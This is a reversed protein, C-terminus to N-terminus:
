TLIVFLFMLVSRAYTAYWSSFILWTFILVLTGDLLYLSLSFTFPYFDLFTHAWAHLTSFGFTFFFLDENKLRSGDERKTSAIGRILVFCAYLDTVGQNVAMLVHADSYWINSVSWLVGSLGHSDRWRMLNVVFQFLLRYMQVHCNLAGDLTQTM